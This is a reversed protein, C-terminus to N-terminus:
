KVLAFSYIELDYCRSGSNYYDDTRTFSFETDSLKITYIGSPFYEEGYTGMPIAISSVYATTENILDVNFGDQTGNHNTVYGSNNAIITFRMKQADANESKKSEGFDCPKDTYDASSLKWEGIMKDAFDSEVADGPREKVVIKQTSSVTKNGQRSTGTLTVEYTGASQYVHSANWTNSIGGDGFSWTANYTIKSESTNTLTIGEGATIETASTTFSVEPEKNCAVAVIGILIFTAIKKM